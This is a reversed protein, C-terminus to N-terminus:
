HNRKLEEYVVQDIGEVQKIAELTSFAGHTERYTIIREAYAPGIGKVQQLAESSGENILQLASTNDSSTVQEDSPAPPDSPPTDAPETDPVQAGAPAPPNDSAVGNVDWTGNSYDFTIGDQENPIFINFTLTDGL